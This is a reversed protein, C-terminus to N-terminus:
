HGSGGMGPYFDHRELYPALTDVLTQALSILDGTFPMQEWRGHHNHFSLGYQGSGIPTFRAIPVDDDPYINLHGRQARVSVHAYHGLAHIAKQAASANAGTPSTQGKRNKTPM